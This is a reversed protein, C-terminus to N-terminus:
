PLSYTSNPMNQGRLGDCTCFDMWNQSQNAISGEKQETFHFNSFLHSSHDCPISMAKFDHGPLFFFLQATLFRFDRLQNTGMPLAPFGLLFLLFLASFDAPIVRRAFTHSRIYVIKVSLLCQSSAALWDPAAGRRGEGEPQAPTAACGGTPEFPSVRFLCVAHRTEMRRGEM